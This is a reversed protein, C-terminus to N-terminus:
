PQGERRVEPLQRERLVADLPALDYLRGLDLPATGLFGLAHAHSAMVAASAVLPDWTFDVNAMAGELTGAPLSATTIRTIERGVLARAEDPHAAIYQTADVHAGLFARVLDPHAALFRTSAIVHTTTFQGDPWRDREDFWVSAGAERVLRTCWPEAVWAGDVLGRQFALLIDAPQMPVVTVTGGEDATKLGADRVLHRLAIDQTGGRQPTAIRKGALDGPTRIGADPRAVFLAGGSSAGAIVRLAEGRSKVYGNLAPSPGVYALDVEGALLAEILQPGASFTRVDVVHPALAARLGGRAVAVLAPAHTLNPLHAVRVRVADGPGPANSPACAAVLLLALGPILRFNM